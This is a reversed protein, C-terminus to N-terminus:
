RCLAVAERIREIVDQAELRREEGHSLDSALGVVYAAAAASRFPEVGRALYSGVVGSLAELSGKWDSEPHRRRNIKVREGDGVVDEYGNLLITSGMRRALEAVRPTSEELPGMLGVGVLTSFADAESVLVLGRSEGMPPGLGLAELAPGTIVSPISLSEILSRLTQLSEEDGGTGPGLICADSVALAERLAPTHEPGLKKGPLLIFSSSPPSPEALDVATEPIAVTVNDVGANTAASATWLPAELREINGGVVLLMGRGEEFGREAERFALSADGPGALIEAELPIGIDAISLKGVYGRAKLLGHKAKHLTVTHTARITAGRAEGTTPDLGTPTDIALVPRDLDNILEVISRYPERLAGTVGTGLMADVVLDAREVDYKLDDLDIAETSQHLSVSCSMAELLDWNLKAIDTRIDRPEGTLYVQVEFGRNALHRAAVSGDGGNNGLGAVVVVKRAGGFERGVADAVGRGANEMMVLHGLGLHVANREIARMEEVTVAVPTFRKMEEAV